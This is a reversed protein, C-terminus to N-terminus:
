VEEFDSAQMYVEIDHTQGSAMIAPFYLLIMDREKKVVKFKRNNALQMKNANTGIYKVFSGKKM